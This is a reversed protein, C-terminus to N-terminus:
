IMRLRHIKGELADSVPANQFRSNTTGNMKEDVGVPWICRFTCMKCISQPSISTCGMFITIMQMDCQIWRSEYSNITFKRVTGRTHMQQLKAACFPFVKRDVLWAANRQETVTENCKFLKCIVSASSVHRSHSHLIRCSIKVDNPMTTM